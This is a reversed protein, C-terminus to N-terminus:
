AGAGNSESFALLEGGFAYEGALQEAIEPSWGENEILWRRLTSADLRRGERHTTVIFDLWREQDRRLLFGARKNATMSFTRLKVASEDSLWDSLDAQCETLEARVGMKEACPRLIREYFEELLANSEGYSLQHKKIPVINSVFFLEPEKETIYITAAPFRDDRDHAFSYTPKTRMALTRLKGEIARDRLWGKPLSAEVEDMLAAIQGTEGRILMDRFVEMEIGRM